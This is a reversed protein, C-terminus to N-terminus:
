AVQKIEEMRHADPKSIIYAADWPHFNTKGDMM